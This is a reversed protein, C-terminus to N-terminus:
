KKTYNDLSPLKVSASYSFTTTSKTTYSQGDFTGSEKAVEKTFLYNKFTYTANGEFSDEGDTESLNTAEVVLNGDGSSFFAYNEDKSEAALKAEALVAAASTLPVAEYLKKSASWLTEAMISTVTYEKAIVDVTYYAGDKMAIYFETEDEGDLLYSYIVKNEADYKLTSKTRAPSGDVTGTAVVKATFSVNEYVTTQKQIIDDIVSSADECTLEQGKCGTLTTLSTLIIALYKTTKKM